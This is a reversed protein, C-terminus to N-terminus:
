VAAQTSRILLVPIPSSGLVRDAISGLLWRNIGSRGHTSMVILNVNASQAKAVISEAAGGFQAEGRVRMGQALLRRTVHSLYEEAAAQAALEWEDLVRVPFNDYGTAPIQWANFLLMEADFATALQWAPELAKEALPSGDLPVLIRTIPQPTAPKDSVRVLLVAVRAGHLVKDAVSGHMWRQMGSRGHTTMVVLDVGTGEAFELIATAPANVRIGTEAQIGDATFDKGVGDLYARAQARLAEAHEDAPYTKGEAHLADTVPALAQFLVVKAQFRAALMKALPLAQEALSSGDLPVMIRNYM